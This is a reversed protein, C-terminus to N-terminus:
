FLIFLCEGPIEVFWPLISLPILTIVRARPYLFFLCETCRQDCRQSRYTDFEGALRVYQCYLEGLSGHRLEEMCNTTPEFGALPASREQGKENEFLPFM